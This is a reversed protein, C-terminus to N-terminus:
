SIPTTPMVMLTMTISTWGVMILLISICTQLTNVTSIYSWTVLVTLTSRVTSSYMDVIVDLYNDYSYIHIHGMLPATGVILARQIRLLSQTDSDTASWDVLTFIKVVLLRLSMVVGDADADNICNGLCDYPEESAYM